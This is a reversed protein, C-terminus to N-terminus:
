ILVPEWKGTVVGRVHIETAEDGNLIFEKHVPNSSRPRLAIKKPGLVNVEKLTTEVLTGAMTREVHVFMGTKLSYGTDAFNVVTVYIGDPFVENMSDGEVKLAYQRAHPFRADRAVQITEPETDEGLISIDRWDGAKIIGMVQLGAVELQQTAEREFMLQEPRVELHPALREAWEKSLKREGNELKTIQSQSTGVMEALAQQTLGIKSRLERIIGM